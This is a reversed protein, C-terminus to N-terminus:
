HILVPHALPLSFDLTDTHMSVQQERTVSASELIARVARAGFRGQGIEWCKDAIADLIYQNYEPGKRLCCQVVYNGFQDLLLLPIYPAIHVSITRIQLSFPFINHQFFIRTM